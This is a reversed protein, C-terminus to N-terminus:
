RKTPRPPAIGFFLVHPADYSEYDSQSGRKPGKSETVGTRVRTKTKVFMMNPTLNEIGGERELRAARIKGKVLTQLGCSIKTEHKLFAKIRPSYDSGAIRAAVIEEVLTAGHHADNAGMGGDPNADRVADGLLLALIKRTKTSRPIAEALEKSVSIM